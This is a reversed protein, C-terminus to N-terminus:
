APEQEIGSTLRCRARDTSPHHTASLFVAYQLLGETIRFHEVFPQYDTFFCDKEM